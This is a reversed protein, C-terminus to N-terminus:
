SRKAPAGPARMDAGCHRCRVTGRAVRGGCSPCDDFRSRRPEFPGAGCHPCVASFLRRPKGCYHCGVLAGAGRAPQPRPRALLVILFPVIPSLILSLVFFGLASLGKSHAVAAVLAALGLWLAIFLVYSM